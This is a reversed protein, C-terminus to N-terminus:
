AGGDERKVGQRMDHRGDLYITLHDWLLARAREPARAAIAEAIEVHQAPRLEVVQSYGKQQRYRLFFERVVRLIDKCLSNGTASILTQHFELDLEMAQYRDGHTEWIQQYGAALQKMRLIDAETAREIASQACGVELWCRFEALQSFTAHDVAYQPIVQELLDAPDAQAVFVGQGQRSTVLGLGRLRGLAERLANRSIRLSASLEQETGLLDGPKLSRECIALRIKDAAAEALGVGGCANGM